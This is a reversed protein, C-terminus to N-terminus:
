EEDSSDEEEEDEQNLGHKAAWKAITEKRHDRSYNEALERGEKDDKDLWWPDFTEFSPKRHAIEHDTDNNEAVTKLNSIIDRAALKPKIHEQEFIDDDKDSEEIDQPIYDILCTM